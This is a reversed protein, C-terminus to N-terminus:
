ASFNPYIDSWECCIETNIPYAWHITSRSKWKCTHPSFLSTGRSQHSDTTAWLWLISTNTPIQTIKDGHKPINLRRKSHGRGYDKWLNTTIDHYLIPKTKGGMDTKFYGMNHQKWITPSSCGTNSARDYKTTADGDQLLNKLVNVYKSYKVVSIVHVWAKLSFFYLDCCRSDNALM